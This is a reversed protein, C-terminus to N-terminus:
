ESLMELSYNDGVLHRVVYRNGHQDRLLRPRGDKFATRMDPRSDCAVLLLAIIALSLHKKM